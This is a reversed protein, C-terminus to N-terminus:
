QEILPQIHSLFEQESLLGVTTMQEEFGGENNYFALAPPGLVKYKELLAKADDNYDTLDVKVLSFNKLRKSVKDQDLMYELEVCSICWDAYFDLMVPTNQLKAQELIPTLQAISTIKIFNNAQEKTIDATGVLGKLPKFFNANGVFVGILLSLGYVLFIFSLGKTLKTLTASSASISNFVGMFTASIIITIASLLITVQLPVVRDLMYIAMFILLVGFTAKVTNMWAGVKPMLHGASVGVLILPVGMGMSLSFLAFGGLVPDASQGIYILAGALPAAMCPGVILASLVGMISVGIYSGGQQKNSVNSLKSQLAAPLQLEYLGFMSLALALFIVSFLVIIWTAQFLVQLNEGFIGALVGALTYTVSVSLVYIMTLTFAKTKTVHEGQGAIISSLIPIMPFVCPTLSLALGAVFFALLIWTFDGAVLLNSFYDQESVSVPQIQTAAIKGKQDSEVLSSDLVGSPANASVTAIPLKINHETTIPPYCVGGDWCGQYEVTLKIDEGAKTNAFQLVIESSHYYVDVQGFLPDDKPKTKSRSIDKVTVQNAASFKMRNDYLYYGDLIDWRLLLKDQEIVQTNLTFVENVPKPGSNNSSSFIGAQATNILLSLFVLCVISFITGKAEQYTLKLLTSGRLAIFAM